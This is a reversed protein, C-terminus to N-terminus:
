RGGIAELLGMLRSFMGDEARPDIEPKRLVEAKTFGPKVEGVTARATWWSSQPEAHGKGGGRKQQPRAGSAQAAVLRADLDLKVSVPPVLVAGPWGGVVRVLRAGDLRANPRFKIVILHGERDISEVDLRDAKIRIRGYEALNLVSAPPTGYRDRVEELVTALEPETRASAVKRYVMLRQNMDHIYGPDIKL